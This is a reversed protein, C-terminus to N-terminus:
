LPLGQTSKNPTLQCLYCLITLIYALPFTYLHILFIQLSFDKNCFLTLIGPCSFVLPLMQDYVYVGGHSTKM